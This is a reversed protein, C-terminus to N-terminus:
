LLPTAIEPEEATAWAIGSLCTDLLLFASAAYFVGFAVCVAAVLWVAAHFARWADWWVPNGCCTAPRTHATYLLVASVGFLPLCAIGQWQYFTICLAIACRSPICLCLFLLTRNM